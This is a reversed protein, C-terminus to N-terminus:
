DCVIMGMEMSNCLFILIHLQLLPAERRCIPFVVLGKRWGKERATGGRADSALAARGFGHDWHHPPPIASYLLLTLEGSSGYSKPHLNRLMM